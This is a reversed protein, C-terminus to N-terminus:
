TTIVPPWMGNGPAADAGTDIADNIEVVALDEGVVRGRADGPAMRVSGAARKGGRQRRVQGEASRQVLRNRQRLMVDGARNAMRGPEARSPVSSGNRADPYQYPRAATFQLVHRHRERDGDVESGSSESSVDDRDHVSRRSQRRRHREGTQDAVVVLAPPYPEEFVLRVLRQGNARQLADDVFCALQPRASTQRRMVPDPPQSIPSALITM